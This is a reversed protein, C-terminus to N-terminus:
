QVSCVAWAPKGGYARGKYYNVVVFSNKALATILSLWCLNMQLYVTMEHGSGTFFNIKTILLTIPLIMLLSLSM